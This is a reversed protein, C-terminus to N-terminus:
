IPPSRRDSPTRHTKSLSRFIPEFNQRQVYRRVHFLGTLCKVLFTPKIEIKPDLWHSLAKM